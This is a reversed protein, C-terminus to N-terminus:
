MVVLCFCVILVLFLMLVFGGVCYVLLVVVGLVVLLRLWILWLPWNLMACGDFSHFGVPLSCVGVCIVWCCYVLWVRLWVTLVQVCYVWGAVVLGYLM